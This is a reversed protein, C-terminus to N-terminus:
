RVGLIGKAEQAVCTQKGRGNYWRVTEAWGHEVSFPPQWALVRRIKSSDIVLSSLLRSVDEARGLMRGAAALFAPPVPFLRGPKGFAHAITQILEPTSLDRGDSVLFAEGAAKPHQIAQHLADVLNGVYIFSRRNNVSRLPLPWGHDVVELLRYINAGVRPGYVVPSRLVVVEIGTRAAVNWLALEADRKSEGYSDQPNCPDAEGWACGPPTVEGMAKVSSVFVLRKVGAVAAAEALSRLGGVNARVYASTDSDHMIHVRGALHVVVDMGAVALSWNSEPGIEEVIMGEVGLPLMKLREKHRVAGRVFWGKSLLIPLLHSAIFGSAGTVLLQM